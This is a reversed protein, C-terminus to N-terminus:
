VTVRYVIEPTYSITDLLCLIACEDMYGKREERESRIRRGIERPSVIFRMFSVAYAIRAQLCALIM